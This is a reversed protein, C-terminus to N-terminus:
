QTTKFQTVAPELTKGQPLVFNGNLDFRGTDKMQLPLLSSGCHANTGPGCVGNTWYSEAQTSKPWPENTSINLIWYPINYSTMYIVTALATMALFRLGIKSTNGAKVREVGREVITQGKDNRFYLLSAYGLCWLGAFAAEYIPFQYYEGYWLTLSPIAAHYGYMGCRMYVIELLMFVAFGWWYSWWILTVNSMAPWRARMKRMTWAQTAVVGWLGWVYATVIFLMPYAQMAGPSGATVSQWFPIDAVWSGMNPFYSNYTFFPTFLNAFPDMFWSFTAFWILLLGEATVTKSQRWVKWVFRYILYFMVPFGAFTIVSGALKIADPVPTPGAPVAEFNPGTVWNILVYSTFLVVIAGFFAWVKVAPVVKPEVAVARSGAIPVAEFMPASTTAM